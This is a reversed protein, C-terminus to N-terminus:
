QPEPTLGAPFVDFQLSAPIPAGRMAMQHAMTDAYPFGRELEGWIRRVVARVELSTQARVSHLWVMVGAAYSKANVRQLDRIISGIELALNPKLHLALAPEILDIGDTAIFQERFQAAMVVIGAIEDSDMIELKNLYDIAEREQVGVAWGQFKRAFWNM